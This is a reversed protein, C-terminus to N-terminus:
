EDAFAGARVLIRLAHWEDAPGTMQEIVHELDDAELAVIHIDGVDDLAARRFVAVREAHLLVGADAIKATLDRQQPGLNNDTESADRGHADDLRVELDRTLM